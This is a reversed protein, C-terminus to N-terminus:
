MRFTLQSEKQENVQKLSLINLSPRHQLFINFELISCHSYMYLNKYGYFQM